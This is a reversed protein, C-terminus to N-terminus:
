TRWNKKFSLMNMVSSDCMTTVCVCSHNVHEQSVRKEFHTVTPASPVNHCNYDAQHLGMYACVPSVWNGGGLSARRQGLRLLDPGLIAM